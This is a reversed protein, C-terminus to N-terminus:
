PFLHIIRFRPSKHHTHMTCTEVVAVSVRLQAELEARRQDAEAQLRVLEEERLLREAEEQQEKKEWERLAYTVRDEVIMRAEEAQRIDELRHEEKLVRARELAIQRDAEEALRLATRAATREEQLRKKEAIEQQKREFELRMREEAEAQIAASYEFEEVAIRKQFKAMRRKEEDAYDEASKHMTIRKGSILPDDVLLMHLKNAYRDFKRLDSVFLPFDMAVAIENVELITQFQRRGITPSYSRNKSTAHLKFSALLDLWKDKRLRKDNIERFKTHKLLITEFEKVTIKKPVTKGYSLILLELRDTELGIDVSLSLGWNFMQFDDEIKDRFARKVLRSSDLYHERIRGILREASITSKEDLLSQVNKMDFDIVSNQLKGVEIFPHYFVQDTSGLDCEM